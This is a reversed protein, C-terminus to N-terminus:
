ESNSLYSSTPNFPIAFSLSPACGTILEGVAIPRYLGDPKILPTLRSSYLMSQGLATGAAILRTLTHLAKLAVPPQLAVALLQHTWGSIGPATDPKFSKFADLLTDEPPIEGNRRGTSMGFQSPPGAPIKAHRLHLPVLQPSKRTLKPM